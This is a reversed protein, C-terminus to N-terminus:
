TPYAGGDVHITQATIYSSDRSALFIVTAACEIPQGPRGMPTSDVGAMNDESFTAPILPTIIPGPAIANVRIGKSGVIQNSLGKTFAVISGKTSTYDLLDPRGIYANISANNIISSGPKMHPIVAKAFYFMPHMNVAFTDEWQKSDLTLIDHNELQQAANNFLIDIRGFISLTESVAKVCNSESKIDLPILHVKRQGNTKKEVEARTDEADKQEAPLYVIASDAGELAALVVFARGIGSDGGTTLAVKGELKGAPKYPTGDFYVDNLPETQMKHQHGPPRAGPEGGQASKEATADPKFGKEFQEPKSSSM